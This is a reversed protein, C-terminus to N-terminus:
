KERNLWKKFISKAVVSILSLQKAVVSILSLQKQWLWFTDALWNVSSQSLQKQWLWLTDALWIGSSQSLQKTVIFHLWDYNELDVYNHKCESNTTKSIRKFYVFAFSNESWIMFIPEWYYLYNLLVYIKIINWIIPKWIFVSSLNSDQYTM